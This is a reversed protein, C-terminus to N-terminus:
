CIEARERYGGLPILVANELEALRRLSLALPRSRPKSTRALSLRAYRLQMPLSAWAAVLGPLRALARRDAVARSRPNQRLHEHFLARQRAVAWIEDAQCYADIEDGHEEFHDALATVADARSLWGGASAGGLPPASSVPDRVAFWRLGGQLPNEEGEEGEDGFAHREQLQFLPTPEPVGRCWAALDADNARGRWPLQTGLDDTGRFEDRVHWRGDRRGDVVFWHPAHRSGCANLWPLNFTDGTVIVAGRASLEASIGALATGPEVARRSALPLPGEAARLGAPRYRFAFACRGEARVQLPCSRGLVSLWDHGTADLYAALAAGYCSLLEGDIRGPEGSDAM